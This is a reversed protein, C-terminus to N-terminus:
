DEMNEYKINLDSIIENILCSTDHWYDIDYIIKKTLAM